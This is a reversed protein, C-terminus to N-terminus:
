GEIEEIEEAEDHEILRLGQLDATRADRLARYLTRIKRTRGVIMAKEHGMADISLIAVQSGVVLSVTAIGALVILEEPRLLDAYVGFTAAVFGAIGLGIWLPDRRIRATTNAIPYFRRPTAFIAGSIYYTGDDYTPKM